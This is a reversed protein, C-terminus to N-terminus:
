LFHCPCLSEAIHRNSTRLLVSQSMSEVFSHTYLDLRWLHYLISLYKCFNSQAIRSPIGCKWPTSLSRSLLLAGHLIGSLILFSELSWGQKITRVDYNHKNLRCNLLYKDGLNEGSFFTLFFACFQTIVNHNCTKPPYFTSTNLLNTCSGDVM